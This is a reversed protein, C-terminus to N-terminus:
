GKSLTNSPIEMVYVNQKKKTVLLYNSVIFIYQKEFKRVELLNLM